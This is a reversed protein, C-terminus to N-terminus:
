LMIGLSTRGTATNYESNYTPVLSLGSSTVKCCVFGRGQRQLHNSVRSKEPLPSFSHAGANESIRVRTPHWFFFFPVYVGSTMTLRKHTQLTFSPNIDITTIFTRTTLAEKNHLTCHVLVLAFIWDRMKETLPTYRAERKNVSSSFSRTVTSSFIGIISTSSLWGLVKRWSKQQSMFTCVKRFYVAMLQQGQPNNNQGISTVHHRAKEGDWKHIGVCLAKLM